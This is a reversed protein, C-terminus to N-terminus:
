KKFFKLSFVGNLFFVKVLQKISESKHATQNTEYKQLKKKLFNHEENLTKYSKKLDEM